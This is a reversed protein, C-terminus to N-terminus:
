KKKEPLRKLKLNTKTKSEGFNESGRKNIYM